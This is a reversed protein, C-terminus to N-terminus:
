EGAVALYYKKMLSFLKSKDIGDAELTKKSINNIYNEIYDLKSKELMKALNDEQSENMSQMKLAVQYDPLLEEYPKFSSIKQSIKLDDERSVDVNYVKQVINGSAESFDYNEIGQSLIKSCIFKIHKPLGSCEHFNYKGDEHIVYYGCKCGIDGLNQEYPSGVFIFKKGKVIMEKHQHIHGAFITGNKLLLDIFSGIYKDPEDNGNVHESSIISSDIENQLDNSVQANRSHELAYNAMIFKSSIDFHGFMFDFQEKHYSSLDALWPVLLAYKGNIAMEAAKDVIHINKNDRFINISNVDTSNKSFLDHNGLIMYVNCKKALAQLCRYAINLTDVTLANRQHFYDGCFIINSIRSQDIEDLICKIAKIGIKQRSPANGKVGFHQDTFVLTKGNLEYMCIHYMCLFLWGNM